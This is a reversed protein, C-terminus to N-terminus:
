REGQLRRQLDILYVFHAQESHDILGKLDNLKPKEIEMVFSIFKSVEDRNLVIAVKGGRRYIGYSGDYEYATYDPSLNTHRM